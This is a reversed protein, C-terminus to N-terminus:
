YWCFRYIALDQRRFSLILDQKRFFIGIFSVWLLSRYFLGTAVFGIWWFFCSWIKNGSHSVIEPPHIYMDARIESSFASHSRYCLCFLGIFTSTFNYTMWSVLWEPFLITLWEPFLIQDQLDRKDRKYTENLIERQFLRASMYMCWVDKQHFIYSTRREPPDKQHLSTPPQPRTGNELFKM